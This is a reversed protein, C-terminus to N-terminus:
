TSVQLGYRGLAIPAMGGFARLGGYLMSCFPIIGSGRLGSSLVRPGDAEVVFVQAYRSADRDQAVHARCAGVKTALKVIVTANPRRHM